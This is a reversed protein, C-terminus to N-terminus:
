GSASRIDDDTVSAGTVVAMLYGDHGKAGVTQIVTASVRPEAAVLDVLRRTGQVDEDASDADLVAGARVVNDVVIVGGARTLRVAHAFYAANNAKDADIFVLDFPSTLEPLTHLAPGVRVEVLEALGANALNGRAIEAHHPDIELSILRGGIPLARALWIASYGGLAGIELVSRADIMRALLHLQQGQCASVAIAPLGAAESAKRAADLVPDELGLAGVFYQDVATWREQTM